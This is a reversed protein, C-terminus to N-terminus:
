GSIYHMLNAYTSDMKGVTGHAARVISRMVGYVLSPDETLFSELQHRRLAIVCSENKEANVSATRKAGDLFALEGTIMGPKLTALREEGREGKRYVGFEGRAIAFLHDDQDGETILTENKSLKRVELRAFLKHVQDPTLEAALGSRSLCDVCSSPPNCNQLTGAELGINASTEAM